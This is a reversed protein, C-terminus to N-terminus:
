RWEIPQSLSQQSTPVKKKPLPPPRQFFSLKLSVGKLAIFVSFLSENIIMCVKWAQSWVYLSKFIYLM